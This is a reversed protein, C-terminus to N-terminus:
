KKGKNPEDNGSKDEFYKCSNTWYGNRQISTYLKNKDGRSLEEKVLAAERKFVTKQVESLEKDLVESLYEMKPLGYVLAPFSFGSINKQFLSAKTDLLMKLIQKSALLEDPTPACSNDVLMFIATESYNNFASKSYFFESELLSKVIHANRRGVAYHLTTNGFVDKQNLSNAQMKSLASLSIQTLNLVSQKQLTDGEKMKIGLKPLEKEFRDFYEIDKRHTLEQWYNFLITSVLNRNSSGLYSTLQRDQKRIYEFTELDRANFGIIEEPNARNYKKIIDKDQEVVKKVFDLDGVGVAIFLDDLGDYYKAQHPTQIVVANGQNTNLKIDASASFSLLMTTVALASLIKNKM